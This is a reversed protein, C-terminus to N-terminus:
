IEDVNGCSLDLKAPLPTFVSKYESMKFHDLMIELMPRNYIKVRGRYDEISICM